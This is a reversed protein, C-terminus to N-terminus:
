LSVAIHDLWPPESSSQAQTSEIAALPTRKRVRLRWRSTTGHAVATSAPSPSKKVQRISKRAGVREVPEVRHRRLAGAEVRQEAVRRHRDM